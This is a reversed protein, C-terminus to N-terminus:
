KINLKENVKALLVNLDVPKLLIDKYGLSVMKNTAEDNADQSGSLVIIPFDPWKKKLTQAVGLGGIGPMRKDLIMLDFNNNEFLSLAQEGSYAMTVEFGKKTLFLHIIKTIEVEDDVTLIKKM